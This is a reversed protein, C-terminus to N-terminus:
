SFGFGQPLPEAYLGTMLDVKELDNDCVRRLEERWAANTILEEFSNVPEERLLCRFQNYCPVGQERDRLSGIAALDMPEGNDSVLNHPHRPYNHLTLFGPHSVGFLYFLDTMLIRAAIPRAKRGSTDPPELTELVEGSKASRFVFEGPMLPHMRYAAVFEETLSYPAAHHDASFGVIGGLIESEDWFELADQLGEGSLGTWNARLGTAVIPHPLIAPPWEVTHIKAMLAVNILGAKGYLQDGSWSFM